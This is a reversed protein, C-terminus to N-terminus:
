PSLPANKAVGLSIDKYYNMLFTPGKKDMKLIKGMALLLLGKIDIYNLCILFM